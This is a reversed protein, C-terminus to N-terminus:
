QPIEIGARAMAERTLIRAWNYREHELDLLLRRYYRESMEEGSLVDLEPVNLTQALSELQRQIRNIQAPDQNNAWEKQTERLEEIQAHKATFLRESEEYETPHTKRLYEEWFPNDFLGLMGNVLGDGKEQKIITDYAAKIKAQDVGSRASFLMNESQWPLDLRKALQTEYALHVEVDDPPLNLQPNILNQQTQHSIEARAQEGIKELRAASRALRLLKDELVTASASETYAQSVLVKMGMNNFLQAGADGCTEPQHAQKFLEERLRTDLAVTDIMQWVRKTLQKRSADRQYDKTERQKRIVKFFDASGPEARVDHWSQDRYISFDASRSFVSSDDPALKWHRLEDEVDQEYAQQRAFGASERYNGFMIRDADSLRTTEFRARSLIFAQDSGPTVQPLSKIPCDRLDIAFSRPRVIEGASNSFLGRPWDELGTNALRLLRLHPMSGVDPPQHLLNGDLRLTELNTLGSLLEIAGSTLSIRNDTLDLTRLQHLQGIAPPL